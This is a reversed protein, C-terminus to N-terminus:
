SNMTFTGQIDGLNKLKLELENIVIKSQLLSTIKHFREKLTYM